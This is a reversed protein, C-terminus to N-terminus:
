KIYVNNASPLSVFPKSPLSCNWSCPLTMPKQIPGLQLASLKSLIQNKVSISGSTTGSPAAVPIGASAVPLSIGAPIASLFSLPASPATMAAPSSITSTGSSAANLALLIQNLKSSPLYIIIRSLSQKMNELDSRMIGFGTYAIGAKRDQMSFATTYPNAPLENTLINTQHINYAKVPILGALSTDRGFNIGAKVDAPLMAYLRYVKKLAENQFWTTHQLRAIPQWQQKLEVEQFYEHYANTIDFGITENATGAMSHIVNNITYAAVKDNPTQYHSSRFWYDTLVVTAAPASGTAPFVNNNRTKSRRVIRFRYISNSSLVPMPFSLTQASYSVASEVTGNGALPSFIAVVETGTVSFLDKQDIKLAIYGTNGAKAHLNVEGPFPWAAAINTLPINAPASGTQFDCIVTENLSIKNVVKNEWISKQKNWQQLWIQVTIKFAFNATLAEKLSFEVRTNDQSYNWTGKASIGKSNELQLKTVAFRLLNGSNDPFQTNVPLAFEIQPHTFTSINKANCAPTIRTILSSDSMSTQILNCKKGFEFDLAADITTIVLNIKLGVKGKGYFPNPGKMEMVTGAGINVLDIGVSKYKGGIKIELAGYATGTSYWGQIGPTTSMGDCGMTAPIKEMQVDFGALCAAKAYLSLNKQKMEAGAEVQMTGGFVYMKGSELNQAERSDQPQTYGTYYRIKEPLPAPPLVKNGTLFYAEVKANTIPEINALLGMPKDPIGGYVFWDTPSFYMSILGALGNTGNGKIGLGAETANVFIGTTGYYVSNAFDLSLQVAGAIKGQPVYSSVFESQTNYACVQKVGNKVEDSSPKTGATMVNLGGYIIVNSIGYNSTYQMEVAGMGDYSGQSPGKFHIGARLGFTGNIDPVYTRGTSSLGYTKSPPNEGVKLARMKQWAGGIFGNIELGPVVPIGQGFILEADFYWYRMGNTNGFLAKCGGQIAAPQIDSRFSISGAAGDGYTVDQRIFAVQGNLKINSIRADVYIDNMQIKNFELRDKGNKEVMNALVTMGAAANIKEHLHLGLVFSIGHLDDKSQWNLQSISVPFRNVNGQETTKGIGLYELGLRPSRNSVHLGQFVIGSYAFSEGDKGDKLMVISGHLDTQLHIIGKDISASVWSYPELNLTAIKLAPVIVKNKTSIGFFYNDNMGVWAKYALTQTDPLIPLGLQGELGAGELGNWLLEISAKDISIAWGGFNGKELSLIQTAYIKGSFGWDDILMQEVGAEPRQTGKSFHEPFIVRGKKLYFGEWLDRYSQSVERSYNAPFAMGTANYQESLDLVAENIEFGFGDLGKMGFAPISLQILLNDWDKAVIRFDAIVASDHLSKYQKDLKHIYGPSFSAIGHIGFESLGNCDMVAWTHTIGGLFQIEAAKGLRSYVNSLLHLKAPGTLGTKNYFTVENAKFALLQNSRPERFALAASFVAKTPYIDINYILIAYRLNGNQPALLFEGSPNNAFATNLNDVVRGEAQAATCKAFITDSETQAHARGASSFLAVLWFTCNVLARRFLM